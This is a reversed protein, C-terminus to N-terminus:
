TVGTGVDPRAVPAAAHLTVAYAPGVNLLEHAHGGGYVQIRNARLPREAVGAASITLEVLEGVIVTSVETAAPAAAGAGAHDHLYTRFGPPWTTLWRTAAASDPDALGVRVPRAPDFRILGWWDAPRGALDRLSAALQGVTAPRPARPRDHPDDQGRMTIDPIVHQNLPLGEHVPLVVGPALNGSAPARLGTPTLTPSLSVFSM